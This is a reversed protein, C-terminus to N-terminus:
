VGLLADFDEPAALLAADRELQASIGAPPSWGSDVLARYLAVRASLLREDAAEAVPGDDSRSAARWAAMATRYEAYAGHLTRQTLDM